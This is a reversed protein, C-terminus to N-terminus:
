AIPLPRMPRVADRRNALFTFRQAEKGPKATKGAPLGSM